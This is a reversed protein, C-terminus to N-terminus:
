GQFLKSKDQQLQRWLDNKQVRGDSGQKRGINRQRRLSTVLLRGPSLPVVVEPFTEGPEESSYVSVEASM